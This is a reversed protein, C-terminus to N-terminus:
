LISMWWPSSPLRFRLFCSLSLNKFFCPKIYAIRISAKNKCIVSLIRTFTVVIEHINVM